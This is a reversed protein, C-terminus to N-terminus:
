NRVRYVKVCTRLAVLNAPFRLRFVFFGSFLGKDKNNVVHNLSKGAQSLEKKGM